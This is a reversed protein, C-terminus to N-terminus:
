VVNDNLVALAPTALCTFEDIEKQIPSSDRRKIAVALVPRNKGCFRGLSYKSGIYVYFVGRDECLIPIHAIIEPPESDSALIVAEAVGRNITKLVEDAGIRLQRNDKALKIISEADVTKKM